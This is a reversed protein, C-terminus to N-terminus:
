SAGKHPSKDHGSIVDRVEQGDVVLRYRSMIEKILESEPRKSGASAEAVLKKLREGSIRKLGNEEALESATGTKGSASLKFVEEVGNKTLGRSAYLAFIGVIQGESVNDINVGSRRLETLKQILFNAVFEKDAKTETTVAKYVPLRPSMLLQRALERSKLESELKQMEREVSPASAEAAGLLKDTIRVPRADTEPYM